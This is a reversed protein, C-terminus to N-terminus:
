PPELSGLHRSLITLCVGLIDAMRGHVLPFEWFDPVVTKSYKVYVLCIDGLLMTTAHGLLMSVPKPALKCGWHRSGWVLIKAPLVMAYVSRRSTRLKM